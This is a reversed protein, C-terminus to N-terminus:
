ESRLWINDLYHLYYVGTTLTAQASVQPDSQSLASFQLVDVSGVPAGAPIDITLRITAREGPQLPLVGGALSAGALSVPWGQSSEYDLQVSDALTGRNEVTVAYTVRSGPRAARAQDPGLALGYEPQLAQYAAWADVRGWGFVNNPVAQLDKGDCDKSSTLPVASGTIAAELADVDGALEPYASILLAALGAVHPGAMSTGSKAEYGEGPVTSRISVGPAVVDPKLRGSGDVTVPGRSSFPAIDDENDTAGVTFSADYIAAPDSVSECGENGASHVTLIGAARVAEVVSQLIAPDECGEQPPCSWSNNIVHPAKSPDPNEGNLDTPAIFWQYCELYTSPRGWGNEMNRCGIWRAGPAMGTQHTGDAGVMIGMTHTGHDGDDCPKPSDFGCRNAVSSNPNDEHIADHWNYNHDAAQGDWGRYKDKLAPHEWDYGTDQGGIVVGEGTIGLAWLQPAGLLSINAEVGGVAEPAAATQAPREQRVAPNAHLRAVEPRQALARVAAESGRVWVANAAWYPRYEVGMGRLAALLPGQSRRATETLRAYVYAGKEAKTKLSAAGSLDAQEKLFVLFETEGQAAEQLVRSDVRGQWAQPSAAAPATAPALVLLSLCILWSFIRRM